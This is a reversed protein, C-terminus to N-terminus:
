DRESVLEIEFLEPWNKGTVFLRGNKSDYAIGNLVGARPEDGRLGALDIWGLVEGTSPSIRAIWDTQWVNAYVEGEVWELENLWQVALGNENVTVRSTEQFSKPDLFRLEATGDSMILQHGDYTLGWGEPAYTFEDLKTFSQRDYVFGLGSTLTLQVIRNDLLTIGEGFIEPDLTLSQTVEGSTLDVKRLTSQGRLGTGEYLFGDGYVLGQTFAGPDHPFRNVIKFAYRPSSIPIASPASGSIPTATPAPTPSRQLACACIALPAILTLVPAWSFRSGIQTLHIGRSGRLLLPYRLDM